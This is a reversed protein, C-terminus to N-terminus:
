ETREDKQEAGAPRTVFVVPAQNRPFAFALPENLYANWVAITSRNRFPDAYRMQLPIDEFAEEALLPEPEHQPPDYRHLRCQIILYEVAHGRSTLRIAFNCWPLANNEYFQDTIYDSLGRGFHVRNAELFASDREVGIELLLKFVDDYFAPVIDISYGFDNLSYVADGSGGDAEDTRQNNIKSWSGRTLGFMKLVGRFSRPVAKTDPDMRLISLYHRLTFERVSDASIPDYWHDDQEPLALNTLVHLCGCYFGLGRPGTKREKEGFVPDAELFHRVRSMAGDPVRMFIQPTVVNRATDTTTGWFIEPKLDHGDRIMEVQCTGCVKPRLDFGDSPEEVFELKGCAPCYYHAPLPNASTVELLWLLFSNSTEGGMVYPIGSRRLYKTLDGVFRFDEELGFADMMRLEGEVRHRIEPPLEEGYLEHVKRYITRRM